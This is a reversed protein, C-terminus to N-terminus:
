FNLYVYKLETSLLIVINAVKIECEHREKTKQLSAKDEHRGDMDMHITNDLDLEDVNSM